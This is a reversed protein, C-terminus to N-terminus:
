KKGARARNYREGKGCPMPIFYPLKGDIVVGCGLVPRTPFDRGYSFAYARVDVGSGVNMGFIRSTENAHFKVGPWSHVHGIVTSERRQIALNIAADKGSCATGHTYAVDDILHSFQWDWGPTEWITAYSKIYRDPLGAKRAVRYQREDHNGICVSAKPFQKRWRQIQTHAASAEDGASMGEPSHEWFGLCHADVLDGIFVIKNVKHLRFTDRVFDLYKCHTFPAHIDAVIGVRSM